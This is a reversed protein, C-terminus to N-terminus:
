LHFLHLLTVEPSQSDYKINNDTQTYIDGGLESSITIKTFGKAPNQLNLIYIPLSTSVECKESPIVELTKVAM